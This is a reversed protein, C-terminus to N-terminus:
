SSKVFKIQETLGNMELDNLMVVGAGVGVRVVVVRVCAGGKGARM